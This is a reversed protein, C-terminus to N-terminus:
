DPHLIYVHNHHALSTEQHKVGQVYIRFELYVTVNSAYKISENEVKVQFKTNINRAEKLIQIYDEFSVFGLVLINNFYEKFDVYCFQFSTKTYVSFHAVTYVYFVVLLNGRVSYSQASMHFRLFDV